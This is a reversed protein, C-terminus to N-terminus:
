ELYLGKGKGDKSISRDGVDLKAKRVLGDEDVYVEAVRALPWLNQPLDNDAMLVVDGVQLNEKPSFWKQREQLSYLFEKWRM